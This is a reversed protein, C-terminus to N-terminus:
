TKQRSLTVCTAVPRMVLCMGLFLLLEIKRNQGYANAAKKYIYFYYDKYFRPLRYTWKSWIKAQFNQLTIENKGSRRQRMNYNIFHTMFRQHLTNRISNSGDHIRYLMLPKDLSIFAYGMEAMRYWLDLDCPPDTDHRYGGVAFFAETNIISSPDLLVQDENKRFNNEFEEISRAGPTM